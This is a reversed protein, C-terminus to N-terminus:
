ATGGIMTQYATGDALANDISPMDTFGTAEFVLHHVCAPNAPLAPVNNDDVPPCDVAFYLYAGTYLGQSNRVWRTVGASARPLQWGTAPARTVSVGSLVAPEHLFSIGFDFPSSPVVTGTGTTAFTYLSSAGRAKADQLSKITLNLKALDTWFAASAV